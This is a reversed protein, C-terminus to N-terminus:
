LLNCENPAPGAIKRQNQRAGDQVFANTESEKISNM